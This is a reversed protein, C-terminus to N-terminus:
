LDEDPMDDPVEPPPKAAFEEALRVGLELASYTMELIMKDSVKRDLPEEYGAVSGVLVKTKGGVMVTAEIVWTTPDCDMQMPPNIVIM